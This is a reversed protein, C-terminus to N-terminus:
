HQVVRYFRTNSMPSTTDVVQMAGAGLTITTLRTWTVPPTMSTTYNVDYTNGSVGTVTIVPYFNFAETTLSAGASHVFFDAKSSNTAYVSYVGASATSVNSLTLKATKSGSIGTGDTLPQNNFYWQYTCPVNAITVSFNATGGLTVHQHEIKNSPM